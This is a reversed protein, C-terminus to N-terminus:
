RSGSAGEAKKTTTRHRDRASAKLGKPIPNDLIIRYCLKGDVRVPDRAVMFGACKEVKAVDLIVGAIM